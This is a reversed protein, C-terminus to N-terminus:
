RHGVDYYSLNSARKIHQSVIRGYLSAVVTQFFAGARLTQSRGSAIAKLTQRAVKEPSPATNVHLQMAQWVKELKPTAGRRLVSGNFDTKLDGLRLEIIQAVDRDVEQMLSETFGSLGAKAANYGSMFPIPFESALSTVNILVGPNLSSWRRLALHSVKMPGLLMLGVQQEWDSFDAGSFEGLVGSGANNVVISLGQDDLRAADWSEQVSEASSADFRLPTIGPPWECGTPERSTGWVEVGADALAVALARGVGRSAGTVLARRGKLAPLPNSRAQASPNGM